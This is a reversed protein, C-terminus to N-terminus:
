NERYIKEINNITFDLKFESEDNSVLCMVAEYSDELLEIWGTLCHFNGNTKDAKKRSNQFIIQIYNFLLEPDISSTCFFMNEGSFKNRICIEGIVINPLTYVFIAPSPHSNDRDAITNQFNLDTDLSSSSNSLVLATKDSLQYNNRRTQQLILESALFGLKSLMDMKFYKAYQLNLKKYIEKFYIDTALDDDNRFFLESGIRADGNRITAYELIKM